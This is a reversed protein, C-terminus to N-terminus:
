KTLDILFFLLHVLDTYKIQTVDNISQSESSQIYPIPM